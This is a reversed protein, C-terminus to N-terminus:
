GLEMEMEFSTEVMQPVEPLDSVERLPRPKRM